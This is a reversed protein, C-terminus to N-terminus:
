GIQFVESPEWRSTLHIQYRGVLPDFAALINESTNNDASIHSLLILELEAGAAMNVLDVAQANSLHGIDSAVRQKLWSPYAGDKLMQEDYNSELFVARFRRFENKVLEDVVGIDTLVGVHIKGCSICFSCADAADHSKRFAKIELTGISFPQGPELWVVDMPKVARRFALYTKRTVYVPVKLRKSLVRVGRCHDSHEHTILISKIKGPDLNREAIRLELQRASLGADVLVAEKENGVYYCNGNSGSALACIELREVKVSEQNKFLIRYGSQM